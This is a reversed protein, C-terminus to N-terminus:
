QSSKKVMRAAEGCFDNFAKKADKKNGSYCNFIENLEKDKLQTVWNRSQRDYWTEVFFDGIWKEM